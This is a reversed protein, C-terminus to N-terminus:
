GADIALLVGGISEARTATLSAVLREFAPERARLLLLANAAAWRAKAAVRARDFGAAAGLREVLLDELAQEDGRGGEAAGYCMAEAAIGGM